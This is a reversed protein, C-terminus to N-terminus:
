HRTIDASAIDPNFGRRGDFRDCEAPFAAELTALGAEIRGALPPGTIKLASEWEGRCPCWARAAEELIASDRTFNYGMIAGLLLPTCLQCGTPQGEALVGSQPGLVQTWARASAPLARLVEIATRYYPAQYRYPPDLDQRAALYGQITNRKVTNMFMAVTTAGRSFSWKITRLAEDIAERETLFLPKLLVYVEFDVKVRSQAANAQEIVSIARDIHNTNYGKNIAVERVLPDLCELGFGLTLDDVTEPLCEITHTLKELTVLSPRTELGVSRLSPIASCRELIEERLAAPM